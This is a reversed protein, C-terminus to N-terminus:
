DPSLDEHIGDHKARVHDQLAELTTFRKEISAMSCRDCQFSQPIDSNDVDRKRSTHVSAIHNKRSREESFEKGCFSCAFSCQVSPLSTIAKDLDNSFWPLRTSRLFPNEADSHRSFTFTESGSTRAAFSKGSQHRRHEYVPNSIISPAADFVSREVLAMGNRQAADLCNWREYQGLVLTLYFLGCPLLWFTNVSHFLHSLFKGHLEANETGLHPHNFIVFHGKPNSLLTPTDPHVIANVEHCVDVQIRKNSTGNLRNLERITFNSDRYKQSLAELSDIGSAMLRVRHERFTESSALFRGLDLSWTLDGDGLTLFVLENEHGRSDDDANGESEINSM